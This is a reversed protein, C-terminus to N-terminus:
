CWSKKWIGCRKEARKKVECCPTKEDHRLRLLEGIDKLSFGLEQACRVFRIRLITEQPHLRYGAITRAPKDMLGRQEYYRITEIHVEAHNALQGTTQSKM